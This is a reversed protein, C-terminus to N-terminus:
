EHSVLVVETDHAAVDHMAADVYRAGKKAAPSLTRVPVGVGVGELPLDVVKFLLDGLEAVLEGFAFFVELCGSGRVALQHGLEVAGRVAGASM